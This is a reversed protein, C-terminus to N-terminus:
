CDPNCGAHCPLPPPDAECASCCIRPEASVTFQKMVNTFSLAALFALMVALLILKRAIKSIPSNTM